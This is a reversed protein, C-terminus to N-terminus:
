RIVVIRMKITGDPCRVIFRAGVKRGMVVRGIPSRPSVIAVSPDPEIPDVVRYTEEMVGESVLAVRSGLQITNSRDLCKLVSAKALPDKIEWIREEIRWVERSVREIETLEGDKFTQSVMNLNHATAGTLREKELRALERGLREAGEPTLCHAQNEMQHTATPKTKKKRSWSEGEGLVWEM